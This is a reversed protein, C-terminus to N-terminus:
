QLAPTSSVESPPLPFNYHELWRKYAEETSAQAISGDLSLEGALIPKGTVPIGVPQYNKHYQKLKELRERRKKGFGYM